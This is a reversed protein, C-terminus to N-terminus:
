HDSLHPTSFMVEGEIEVLLDDRCVDAKVFIMPTGPYIQECMNRVAGFDKEHKVYIRLLLYNASTTVFDPVHKKINNSDTLTKIHRVTTDIQRKLDNVGVTKEGVISATGSVFLTTNGPFALLRAREFQPPEKKNRNSLAVGVLVDQGYAYPNQQHENDVPVNIVEKYEEVAYFDISVGQASTGIGTAAPFDKGNRYKKYYQSRVENFVQYNQIAKGGRREIHLIHGIYNWQRVVNDMNMGENELVQLMDTFAGSSDEKVDGSSFNKSGMGCAWIEKHFSDRVVTYFLDNVEKFTIEVEGSSMTGAEITVHFGNEPKQALVTHAPVEDKFQEIIDNIIITRYRLYKEEEEADIFVVLKFLKNSRGMERLQALCSQWEGEIDQEEAPTIIQYTRNM